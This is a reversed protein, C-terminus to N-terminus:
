STHEESREWDAQFRPRLSSYHTYEETQATRKWNRLFMSAQVQLLETEGLNTFIARIPLDQLDFTGQAIDRQEVVPPVLVANPYSAQFRTYLQGFHLINWGALRAFHVGMLTEVAPPADYEPLNSSTMSPEMRRRWRLCAAYRSYLEFM